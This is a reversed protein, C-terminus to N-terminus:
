RVLQQLARSFQKGRADKVDSLTWYVVVYQNEELDIHILGRYGLLAGSHQLATTQGNQRTLGWGLGYRQRPYQQSTMFQWAERSLVQKQMKKGRNLIMSAFHATDSATSYLSGGILPFRLKKGLLHPAGQHAILKGNSGRVGPCAINASQEIDPFYTTHKMGLPFCLRGQLLEEFRKSTVKKAVYGALCYGAGSYAFKEGPQSILKQQQIMKVSDELSLEFDRIARTQSATMPKAKQSYIGARHTLLEKMNPARALNQGDELEWQRTEPIWKDISQEFALEGSDRLTLICAAAIPKSCSGICFQTEDNVALASQPKIVGYSKTKSIGSTSGIAAQAGVLVGQEIGKSILSDLRNFLDQRDRSPQALLEGSDIQCVFIVVVYGLFMRLRFWGRNRDNM